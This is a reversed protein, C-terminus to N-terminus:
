SWPEEPQELQRIQDRLAAAHEFDESDVARQLSRRLSDVRARRDLAEPNPPMVLKGVHQTGGHLRRLLGRLHQEFHSYCGACGLRGTQKLQAPTLGCSPCQGAAIAEEGISKGIQALFDALTLTSPAAPIGSEVGEDAACAECLHLVRMENDKVKTLQIVADANGCNDCRM